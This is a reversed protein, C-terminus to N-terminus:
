VVETGRLMWYTARGAHDEEPAVLSIKVGTYPGSAVTIRVGEAFATDPGLYVNFTRKGTLRQYELAERSTDVQIDAAYTVTTSTDAFGGYADRTTSSPTGITVTWRLM